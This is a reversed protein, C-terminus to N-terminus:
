DNKIQRLARDLDLKLLYPTREYINNYKKNIKDLWDFYFDHRVMKEDEEQRSNPNEITGLIQHYMRFVKEMLYQYQYYKKTKMNM